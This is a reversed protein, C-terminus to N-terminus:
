LVVIYCDFYQMITIPFFTRRKQQHQYAQNHIHQTDTDLISHDFNVFHWHNGRVYKPIKVSSLPSFIIFYFHIKSRAPSASVNKQPHISFIVSFLYQYVKSFYFRRVAALSFIGNYYLIASVHKVDIDIMPPFIQMLWGLFVFWTCLVTLVQHWNYYSHSCVYASLVCHKINTYSICVQSFYRM